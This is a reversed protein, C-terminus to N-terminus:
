FLKWWTKWWPARPAPGPVVPAPEAPLHERPMIKVSRIVTREIPYDNSDAPKTSLADLTDLGWLIHGFVTYQGDYQPQPALCIYFQSGNSHRSPNIKDPLRAAAVIGKTHKRRIEAEITYGPGGTGVKSRDKHKTLPDGMQVLIHPFVRHIALGNYFKKGALKKFNEVTRPAEAEYFELAFQRPTKDDGVSLTVLAVDEARAAAALTLALVAATFLHKKM